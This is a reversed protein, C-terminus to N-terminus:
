DQLGMITMTYNKFVYQPTNLDVKIVPNKKM